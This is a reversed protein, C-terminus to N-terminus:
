SELRFFHRANAATAEAVEAITVGKVLAIANAIEPLYSPENPKGRHSQPALYPTDTEILLQELPVMKAVERLEESKKFTVIGSLSLFWGRDIVQKAEQLNGTFCHLVGPAHKGELCYEADIIEFFDSFADRCHIVVPLKCELALKLYKKLFLKQKERPSHQYYYDLGTEGIAVLAGSHACKEVIPFFTEGETEVDHPTTAATNFVWTCKKTLEIGRELTLIDTCINIISSLGSAKARSLLDEIKPHVDDSTLHAHSDVYHM